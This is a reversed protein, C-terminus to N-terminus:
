EMIQRKNDVIIIMGTFGTNIVRMDVFCPQDDFGHDSFQLIEKAFSKKVEVGWLGWIV